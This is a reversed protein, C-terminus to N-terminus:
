ALFRSKQGGKSGRTVFKRYFSIEQTQVPVFEEVGGGV